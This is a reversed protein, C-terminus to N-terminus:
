TREIRAAYCGRKAFHAHLYAVAPNDLLRAIGAHVATGEIVDADIMMHWADFARLSVLRRSLMAPVEALMAPKADADEGIFIAHSARYPTAAPQHTYNVLLASAGRPLDTLTVRDPFDPESDVTFRTAGHAALADDSLGFLHRFPTHDLGIIRFSM